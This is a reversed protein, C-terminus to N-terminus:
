MFRLLPLSTGTLKCARDLFQNLAYKHSTDLDFAIRETYYRLVESAKMGYEAAAAESVQPLNRLGNRFGIRLRDAIGSPVREPHACWVAFTFPLGTHAHWAEVLDKAYKFHKRGQLARDGIAVAGVEPGVYALPDSDSTRFEVNRKWYHKFLVQVLLNTTRSEPNLYVVQMEEPEDHGVLFVSDVKEHAGICYGELLTVEPQGVFAGVSVLAVDALNEFFDSACEAPSGLNVQIPDKQFLDALGFLFPRSNLYRIASLRLPAPTSM